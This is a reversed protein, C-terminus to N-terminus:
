LLDYHMICLEYNMIAQQNIITSDKKYLFPRKQM